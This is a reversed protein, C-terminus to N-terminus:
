REGSNWDIHIFHFMAILTEDSLQAAFASEGRKAAYTVEGKEALILRGDSAATENRDDGSFAYITVIPVATQTSENWESFVLGRVGDIEEGRSISLRACWNEPIDLYWGGSFSHYTTQKVTQAGDLALNYWRIISYADASDTSATLPQLRPLEILGDGDIDAAYVYYNRLTQMGEANAINRFTGNQLTFVDTVLNDADYVGAVFVAPVNQALNGTIIRKIATIGPSMSAEAEREMQDGTYRYLEGVGSHADADLRLLFVDRLGDGDLDTLAYESYNASMLEVVHGDRIAYVSMAQLVQNGLKRGILIEMGDRGDMQAYEVSEFATGTGEIIAINVYSGDVHDFIYACLPHEGPAKLYAIAEEAGDGDLDALQVSQRNVGAVPASYELRGAAIAGDIASQLDYYEDSHIPLAYLEDVTKILCGSLLFVSATLGLLCLLLKQHRKM